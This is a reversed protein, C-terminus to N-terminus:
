QWIRITDNNFDGVAVSNPASGVGFNVAPTVFTGNGNELLISVSAPFFNAVALDQITDNNFDEVAVSQPQDGVGFNLAPTVFTGNGNGLLISVNDSVVNAVALDM